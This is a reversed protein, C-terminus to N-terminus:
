EFFFILKLIYVKLDNLIELVVSRIDHLPTTLYIRLLDPIQEIILGHMSTDMTSGGTAKVVTELFCSVAPSGFGFYWSDLIRQVNLIADHRTSEDRNWLDYLLNLSQM